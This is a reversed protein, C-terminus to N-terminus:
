LSFYLEDVEGTNCHSCWATVKAMYDQGDLLYTRPASVTYVMPADTFNYLYPLITLANINWYTESTTYVKQGDTNYIDVYLKLGPCFTVSVAEDNKESYEGFCFFVQDSNAFRSFQYYNNIANGSMFSHNYYPIDHIDKRVPIPTGSCELGDQIWVKMQNLEPVWQVQGFASLNDVNIYTCGPKGAYCEIEYGYNGIYTKVETTYMDFDIAGIESNRPLFTTLYDISTSDNRIIRLSKDYENWKVDFGFSTLDEVQIFTYGNLVYSPIPYNNIYTVLTGKRVTGVYSGSFDANATIPACLCILLLVTQLLCIMKKM